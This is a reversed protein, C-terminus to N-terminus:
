DSTLTAATMDVELLAIGAGSTSTLWTAGTLVSCDTSDASARFKGLQEGVGAVKRVRVADGPDVADETAVWITGKRLVGMTTAPKLGTDGLETGRAYAESRVVVGLPVDGSGDPLQCGEDENSALVVCVGFPIEASSEQSTYSRPNGPEAAQVTGSTPYNAQESVSSQAM